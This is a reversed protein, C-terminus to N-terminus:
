ALADERTEPHSRAPCYLLRKHLSFSTV